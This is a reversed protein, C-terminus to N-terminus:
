FEIRYMLVPILGFQTDAEIQDNNKNYEYTFVNLRGTVNQIQLSIVHALKNLNIRYSSSLDLRYYDPGIESFGVNDFRVTEQEIRSQPLDIPRYRNGGGYLLRLNAGFINKDKKGVQWEKGGLLTFNYYQNYRSDFERGDPMQYLSEYISATFLYYYGKNFFKELTVEFGYNTATGNDSLIRTSYSDNANVASFSTNPDDYVLVNYLQQYYAEIKLRVQESLQRDYGLVYHLAKGLELDKNGLGQNGEDDITITNYVSLPAMRSHLGFGFSVSQIDNIQYQLGLRPELSYNRNLGLFFYHIGTNLTWKETMRYKYQSFLQITNTAGESEIFKRFVGDQDEGEAFQQYKLHSLIYGSKLIHRNNFKHNVTTAYRIADNIFEDEYRRTASLSFPNILDEKFGIKQRSASITTQFYSRNSIFYKHDLGIVGFNSIFEFDEYEETPNAKVSDRDADGTASSLGGLGFIKFIGNKETPLNIQFSLDQFLNDEGDTDIAGIANLMSLTSYRYNVLYSGNYDEKIPGELAVDTGLFGVQFVYERERNNGNRLNVDFVGSTANGYEAPFAGTFFDSNGLMNVSLASVGGSSAGNSSFHNPSPIEVGNLRWLMGLPSNGRIVIENSLDDSTSVGAFSLAMRSPDDISAAYRSTEDTSFSRSSVTAMENNAREKPNEASVVVEEMLIYSEQLPINLIVEKASGVMVNPLVMQEYGLYSIRLQQRGVPVDELIFQGNLDTTAGKPPNFNLLQVTAGILPSESERDIVTGRINQTLEQSYLSLSFLLIVTTLWFHRM